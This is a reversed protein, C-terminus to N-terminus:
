VDTYPWVFGGGLMGREFQDVYGWDVQAQPEEHEPTAKVEAVTVDLRVARREHDVAKVAGAPVVHHTDDYSVVLYSEGPKYSAWSCKGVEGDSAEVTYDKVSEDHAVSGEPFSWMRREGPETVGRDYDLWRAPLRRAHM